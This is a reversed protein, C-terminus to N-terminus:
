DSKHSLDLGQLIPKACSFLASQDTAEERQEM